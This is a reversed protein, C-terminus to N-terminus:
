SSIVYANTSPCLQSHAHTQTHTHLAISSFTLMKRFPVSLVRRGDCVAVLRYFSRVVVIINNCLPMFLLKRRMWIRLHTHTHIYKAFINYKVVEVCLVACTRKVHCFQFVFFFCILQLPLLLLLVACLFRFFCIPFIYKYKVCAVRAGIHVYQNSDHGYCWCSFLCCSSIM